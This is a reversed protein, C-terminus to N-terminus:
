IKTNIYQYPIKYITGDETEILGYVESSSTIFELLMGENIFDSEYVGTGDKVKNMYPPHDKLCDFISPKYVEITEFEIPIFKKFKIKRM